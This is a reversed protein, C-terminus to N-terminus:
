GNPAEAKEIAERVARTMGRGQCHTCPTDYITKGGGRCKACAGCRICKTGGLYQHYSFTEEMSVACPSASM